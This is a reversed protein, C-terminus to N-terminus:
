PALRAKGLRTATYWKAIDPAWNEFHPWMMECLKQIELQANKKNRLDAFHLFSRLNFSVVFHQRYDFPLKGRAHEESMGGDFDIKYRKAAERCWELDKERQEPSYYYKKGERDTYYDVPRLYFIDEIDKKGVAADLFQNGTYRLSNHVVLGNAVFNHWDGDVELDYTMQQGVYEVSKVKVAHSQLKRGKPKPKVEWDQPDLIPSYATYFEINPSCNSLDAIEKITLGQSIKTELWSKDTYIRDDTVSVGNCMVHSNQNIRVVTGDAHTILGVADKMTQWGDPTFLRHNATCELTKGDELTVKYVPQIGSCMVEKIHGVEFLGTQENLVRLRMKRIRQKCDRRYEGPPEGNRGLISRSRIAKEGNTWLDYLEGITKSLNKKGASGKSDVFTILTDAALCQVDFSVGVRHTRAQQMVSHPFYGCNFIIQPHELPGYHGRDGALLRKVIIEGCEAESPWSDREDFVFNETYDQHLAAYVVQQPNPTQSIVEVRFKEM